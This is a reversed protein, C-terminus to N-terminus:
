VLELVQTLNAISTSIGSTQPRDLFIPAIDPQNQLRTIVEQNDDIIICPRPLKELYATTTKRQAIFLLEQDFLPTLGALDLKKRQWTPLGQSFVGVKYTGKLSDLVTPVEPFVAATYLEPNYFINQLQQTQKGYKAAMGALYIDPDFFIVNILSAIHELTFARVEQNTIGLAIALSNEVKPVFAGGTNFLTGDLDFLIIHHSQMVSETHSM